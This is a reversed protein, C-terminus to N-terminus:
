VTLTLINKRLVGDSGRYSIQFQTDSIPSGSWETNALTPVATVGKFVMSRDANIKLAVGAANSFTTFTQGAPIEIDFTQTGTQNLRLGVLVGANTVADITKVNIYNSGAANGAILGDAGQVPGRSYIMAQSENYIAFVLGTAPNFGAGGKGYGLPLYMGYCNTVAGTGTVTPANILAGYYNTLTGASVIPSTVFSFLNGFTGGGTIAFESGVQYCAHHGSVSAGVTKTRDDFSNHSVNTRNYVSSDTFSHPNLGGAGELVRSVVVQADESNNVNNDGVWLVGEVHDTVYTRTIAGRKYTGKPVFVLKGTAAAALFGLASDGAGTPDVGAADLVSLLDSLKNILLRSAAGAFMPPYVLTSVGDSADVNDVTWILNNAADRLEVKYNGTWFIQAEGRGDLIIPNTNPVTGAADSYTLKPTTSGAEYTYLRGGVLPDGSTSVFLQKGTPMLIPM